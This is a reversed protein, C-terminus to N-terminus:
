NNFPRNEPSDNNSWRTQRKEDKKEASANIDKIIKGLESENM